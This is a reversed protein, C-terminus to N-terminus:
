LVSRHLVACERTDYKILTKPKVHKKEKPDKPDALRNVTAREGRYFPPDFCCSIRM